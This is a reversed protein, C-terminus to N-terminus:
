RKLKEIEAKLELLLLTNWRFTCDYDLTNESTNLGVWFVCKEKICGKKINPCYKIEPM